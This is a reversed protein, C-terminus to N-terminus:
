PQAGAATAQSPRNTGTSSGVGGAVADLVQQRGRSLIGPWAHNPESLGANTVHVSIIAKGHKLKLHFSFGFQVKSCSSACMLSLRLFDSYLVSKHATLRPEHAIAFPCSVHINRIPSVRHLPRPAGRHQAGPAETCVCALDSGDMYCVHCQRDDTPFCDTGHGQSAWGLGKGLLAASCAEACHARIIRFLLM